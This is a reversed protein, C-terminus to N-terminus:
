AAAEAPLYRAILARSLEHQSSAIERRNEELTDDDARHARLSQREAVLRAIREQLTEVTHMDAM